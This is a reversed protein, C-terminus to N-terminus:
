KLIDKGLLTVVFSGLVRWQKSIIYHIILTDSRFWCYFVLSKVRNLIPKKAAVWPHPAPWFPGGERFETVCIRCHHFTACNYRVWLVDLFYIFWTVCGKLEASMLIKKVLFWCIKSYWSICIYITNQYM